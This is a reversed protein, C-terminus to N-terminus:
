KLGEQRQGHSQREGEGEVNVEERIISYKIRTSDNRQGKAWATEKTHINREKQQCVIKM